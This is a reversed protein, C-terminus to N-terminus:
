RNFISPDFTVNKALKSKAKDLEQQFTKWATQQARMIRITTDVAGGDQSPEGPIEEMIFKALREIQSELSEPESM